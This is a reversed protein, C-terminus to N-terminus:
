RGRRRAGWPWVPSADRWGSRGGSAWGGVGDVELGDGGPGPADRAVTTGGSEGRAEECGEVLEVGTKAGAGDCRGRPDQM